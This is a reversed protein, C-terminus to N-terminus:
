RPTSSSSTRTTSCRRSPRACRHRRGGRERTSLEGASRAADHDRARSRAARRRHAAAFAQPQDPGSPLTLGHAAFWRANPFEGTAALHPSDSLSPHFPKAEIGHEALRAAVRDRESCVVEAWLPLEGDSERVELLRLYPLDQLHERYYAQVRRVGAIRRELKALQSIGLAAQMDTMRFNCGPESFRNLKLEAAGHNRLNALKRWRAEDATAVFGGEGTTVLKTM